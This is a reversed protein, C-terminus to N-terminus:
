RAQARGGTALSTRNDDKTSLTSLCATSSANLHVRFTGACLHPFPGVYALMHPRLDTPSFSLINSLEFLWFILRPSRQSRTNCDIVLM